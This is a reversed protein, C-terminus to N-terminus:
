FPKSQMLWAIVVVIVSMVLLCLHAREVHVISGAPTLAKKLYSQAVGTGGGLVVFLAVSAIMWMQRGFAGHVIAILTTGTIFMLGLSVQSIRLLRLFARLAPEPPMPRSVGAPLPPRKTLIALATLPGLGLIAVVVHLSVVFTYLNM